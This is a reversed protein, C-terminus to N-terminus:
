QESASDHVLVGDELRLVRHRPHSRVLEDDHTSMVVGMGMRNLKVLLRYVGAGAESDLHGTPEDALLLRPETALARAIQVRQREGGSLQNPYSSVQASLGVQNLLRIAIGDIRRRKMRLIRLALGVNQAANLEPLLRFDQFVYGVRRRIQPIDRRKIADSRYTLVRFEGRTPAIQFHMLRLVTTKGAGSPGTLFVFEGPPIRFSLNSVGGARPYEKSVGSFRIM